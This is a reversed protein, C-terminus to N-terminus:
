LAYFRGGTRNPAKTGKNEIYHNIELSYPKFDDEPSTYSINNRAISESKYGESGLRSVRVVTVEEVIYKLTDPIKDVDLIAKLQAQTNSHLIRIQTDLDGSLRQKINDINPTNM